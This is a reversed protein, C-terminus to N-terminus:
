NTEVDKESFFSVCYTWKLLQRCLIIEDATEQLFELEASPYKKVESLNKMKKKIEAIQKQCIEKSKQHNTYREFYFRYRLIENGTSM